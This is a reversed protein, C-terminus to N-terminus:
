GRANLSTEALRTYVGGSPTLESRMLSVREVKWTALIGIKQSGIKEGLESLASRSAEQRSRGLTLHPSFPRDETPYGLPSVTREVADRLAHLAKLEGSAGAWVIRPKQLNPFCGAGDISLSFPKHDTAAEVVAAEIAPVRDPPTDGLFKLTLHISDLAVWRVARERDLDRLRKQLKELADTIEAPLELAIFLRLNDSEPPM